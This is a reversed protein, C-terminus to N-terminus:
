KKQKEIAELVNIKRISSNLVTTKFYPKLQMYLHYAFYTVLQVTSVDHVVSMDDIYAQETM